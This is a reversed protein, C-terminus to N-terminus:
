TQERRIVATVNNAAESSNVPRGARTSLGDGSSNVTLTIASGPQVAEEGGLPVTDDNSCAALLMAGVASVYLYNKM